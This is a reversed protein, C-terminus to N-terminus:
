RKTARVTKDIVTTIDQSSDVVLHNRSIKEGQPTIKNYVEWDAETNNQPMASKERAILGQRVIEIPAEVWALILKTKVRKSARYFYERHRESLNTADFIVPIRKRLLDEIPVHYASSLGRIKM